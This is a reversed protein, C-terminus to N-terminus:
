NVGPTPVDTILGRRRASADFLEQAFNNVMDCEERTLMKEEEFMSLIVSFNVVLIAWNAPFGNQILRIYHAKVEPGFADLSVGVIGEM